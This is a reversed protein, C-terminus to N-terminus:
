ETGLIHGITNHLPNFTDNCVPLYHGILQQETAVRAREGGTMPYFSVYLGLPGGAHKLWESYHEHNSRVRDHLESAQGFYIVRFPRPKATNDPVLIAYIGGGPPPFRLSFPRPETFRFNAFVIGSPQTPSTLLTLWDNQNM